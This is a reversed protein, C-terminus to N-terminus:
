LCHRRLCWCGMSVAVFFSAPHRINSEIKISLATTKGGLGMPGIGLQNVQNLLNEEFNKLEKIPNQDDLKRLLQRKSSHAVEEISGGIAVGIIYPPCGKGQAKFTTDLVCKKVGDLNRNANIKLDPLQYISSVNESGGGKLLLNIKLDESEDFHIIPKNGINKNTLSDVANPRLPIEKTADITAEEIIRKLEKQSHITPYKVYFIPIGTDQCIPKSEDKAKKINELIKGLIEKSNSDGENKKARQLAFIIDDPLEIAAKRYLNIIEKKLDM